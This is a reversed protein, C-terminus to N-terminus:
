PLEFTFCKKNHKVTVDNHYVGWKEDWAEACLDTQKEVYFSLLNHFLANNKQKQKKKKKKKQNNSQKHSSQNNIKNKMGTASELFLDRKFYFATAHTETVSINIM